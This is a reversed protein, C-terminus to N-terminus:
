NHNSVAGSSLAVISRYRTTMLRALREGGEAKETADRTVTGNGKETKGGEEISCKPWGKEPVSGGALGSSGRKGTM